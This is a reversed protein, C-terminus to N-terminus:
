MHYFSIFYRMHQKPIPFQPDYNNDNNPVLQYYNMQNMYYSDFSFQSMQSMQSKNKDRSIINKYELQFEKSMKQLLQYNEWFLVNEVSFEKIAIERLEKVLTPNNLVKYFYQLSCM